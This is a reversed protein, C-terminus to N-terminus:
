KKCHYIIFKDNENFVEVTSFLKSLHTYLNLHKSTVMQFEGHLVLKRKVERFLNLAVEINNEHDFHFPPNSLALDISNDEIDELCNNYHFQFNGKRINQKSSEIALISDDLLHFHAKPNQLYGNYAIIGNGSALDLIKNTTPKVMLNEIFFQSAYDIKKASFVGFFQTFITKNKLTIKHIFTKQPNTKKHKLLLLRSKKWARSQKYEEFYQHIIKLLQPSFHKTMFACVVIGEKSLHKHVNSLQLEFLDLSKPIKIIAVNSIQSFNQLENVMSIESNINNAKINLQIAKEQSKYNCIVTPKTKNLHTCLFGFRDNYVIPKTVYVDEQMLYKLIHEDAASWAKLSSNKTPPYRKISINANM